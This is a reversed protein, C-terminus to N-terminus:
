NCSRKRTKVVVYAALAAMALVIMGIFPLDNLDLGTPTTTDNDNIFDASNAAEGVYLADIEPDNFGTPLALAEGKAGKVETGFAAGNYVVTASPTYAAAGMEEIAYSTGVPTDIFVLYQGAKLSFTVPTGSAFELYSGNTDSGSIAGNESATVVSYAGSEDAEVVYAKYSGATM